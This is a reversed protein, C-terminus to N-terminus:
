VRMVVPLALKRMASSVADASKQSTDDAHVVSRHATGFYWSPYWLGVNTATFSLWVANLTLKASPM